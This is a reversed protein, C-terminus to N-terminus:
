FANPQVIIFPDGPHPGFFVDRAAAMDCRGLSPGPQGPRRFRTSPAPEARSVGGGDSGPAIRTIGAAVAAASGRIGGCLSRFRLSKLHHRHSCIRDNHVDRAVIMERHPKRKRRLLALHGLNDAVVRM